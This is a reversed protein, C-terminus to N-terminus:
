DSCVFEEDELELEVMDPCAAFLPKRCEGTTLSEFECNMGFCM